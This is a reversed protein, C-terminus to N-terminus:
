NGLAAPQPADTNAVLASHPTDLPAASNPYTAPTAARPRAPHLRQRPAALPTPQWNRIPPM